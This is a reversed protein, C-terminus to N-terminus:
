LGLDKVLNKLLDEMKKALINVLEQDVVEDITFLNQKVRDPHLMIYIERKPSTQLSFYKRMEPYDTPIEFTKLYGDLIEQAIEHNSKSKPLLKEEVVVGRVNSKNSSNKKAYKNNQSYLWIKKLFYDNLLKEYEDMNKNSISNLIAKETNKTFVSKNKLQKIFFENFLSYIKFNM